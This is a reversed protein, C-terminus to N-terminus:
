GNKHKLLRVHLYPRVKIEIEKIAISALYRKMFKEPMEREEGEGAKLLILNCEKM